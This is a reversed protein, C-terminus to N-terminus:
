LLVGRKDRVRFFKKASDWFANETLTQTRRHYSKGDSKPIRVLNGLGSTGREIGGRECHVHGHIGPHSSHHEYRAIVSAEKDFKQMLISQWNGLGPNGRVLLIYQKGRVLGRASSSRWKWGPRMAQSVRYIPAHRPQLRTTKWGTDTLIEKEECILRRVRM